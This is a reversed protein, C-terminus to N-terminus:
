IIFKLANSFVTKWGASEIGDDIHIFVTARLSWVLLFVAIYIALSAAPAGHSFARNNTEGALSSTTTEEALSQDRLHLNFATLLLKGRRRASAHEFRTMKRWNRLLERLRSRMARSWLCDTRRM